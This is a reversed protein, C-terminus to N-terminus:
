PESSSTRAAASEFEQGERCTLGPLAGLNVDASLRENGGGQVSSGIRMRGSNLGKM